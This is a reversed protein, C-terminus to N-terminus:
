SVFISYHHQDGSRISQTVVGLCWVRLRHAHMESCAMHKTYQGNRVAAEEEDHIQHFKDREETTILGHEHLTNVAKKATSAM